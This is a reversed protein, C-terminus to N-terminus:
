ECKGYFSNEIFDVNLKRSLYGGKLDNYMFGATYMFIYLDWNYFFCLPFPDTHLFM